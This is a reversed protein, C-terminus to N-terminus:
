AAESTGVIIQRAQAPTLPEGFLYGQAYDCGLQSLEVADSETEVLDAVVELGLDQAMRIVPSLLASREGSPRERMLSRDLRMMELPLRELYALACYGAGFGDLTMGAGLDRLRLFLQAAYEPNEMVMREPFALRLSRPAVRARSLVNKVDSLLEHRMLEPSLIPTNVFIPPDVDLAGQWFNLEEAAREMAFAVLDGAAGSEQAIAAFVDDAIRGRKPHDWRLVTEFGAITRDDLRVIPQFLARIENQELARALDAALPLDETQVSRLTPRYVHTRDGGLRKAETMALDANDLMADPKLTQADYLAVGISATFFIEREAYTVPTALSRRVADAFGMIRDPDRESLLIVGFRDGNLRALTDQPRLLRSLRRSLTLLIADGASLGAEENVQKFRDIDIVIVTPSHRADQSALILAARLRDDFLCRNPLGTLNDHVADHLLREQATRTDTVDAITGVVRIVEGDSGIVPRARLRLWHYPGQGSRLRFEQSIRGRKQEIVADLATRYRDRDFPHVLDLWNAVSGQLAGRRLSLQDEIEPSVFVRDSLVDWDFVIDGAGSLALARRESDSVLGQAFAGGAFAHQMVTFGILMVILVLGGILAQSVLDGTLYGTVTFGAATVWAILLLWTPILMVARDYGLTALHLVLLFGIGAVAAISVRAVGAAVPPDIVALGVLAALFALWFLTVYGYRVHWRNLNLYAFLFVLLTAALIAEAAARYIREAPEEVPFVRQFFGFDIGAYALVAWAIAAAAPFIVAGKVVFVVTLFLALLGAIGIIIGKYLTLGSIKARYADPEWLHLQPVQAARLEGVYTVTAGPDLTIRFVDAETSVERDPRIGQSATIAAIRSSGLDPWVVGSDVLRFHPAVLLRELQESSENTLAFVIWDPRLGAERATVAIRRVIGDPGPATSIQIIDGDSRYHEIADTLDIATTARDVRVADVAHVPAGLGIILVALTLALALSHRIVSM